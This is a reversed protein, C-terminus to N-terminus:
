DPFLCRGLHKNPLFEAKWVSSIVAKQEIAVLNRFFSTENNEPVFRGRAKAKEQKCCKVSSCKACLPGFDSRACVIVSAWAPRYAHKSMHRSKQGPDLKGCLKQRRRGLIFSITHGLPPTWSVQCPGHRRDAGTLWPLCAPEESYTDDPRNWIGAEWPPPSSLWPAERRHGCPSGACSGYICLDAKQEPGDCGVHKAIIQNLLPGQHGVGKAM